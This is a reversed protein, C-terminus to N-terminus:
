INNAWGQQLISQCSGLDWLSLFADMRLYVGLLMCNLTTVLAFYIPGSTITYEAAKGLLDSPVGEGRPRLTQSRM